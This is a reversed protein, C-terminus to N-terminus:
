YTFSPPIYNPPVYRYSPTGRYRISRRIWGLAKLCAAARNQHIQQQDKVDIGLEILMESATTSSLVLVKQAIQDQWPDVIRRAEQEVSAATTLAESDLWWIEDALFRDRAEAWLMDRVTALADLDIRGTAVSWFRRAGTEDRLYENHNVTGAFVNQRPQEIVRHGYAPRFRDATRSMFAKIKSVDGRGMADLEAIEFCWAGPLQMSADKTGLDSIEDTFWPHFMTKLASSKGRGQPGELILACDAKCGPQMVRAVASILWRGSIARVLPTDEVGLCKILWEDLRPRGDWRCREIYDVVPHFIADQAAAEVAQGATDKSVLIGNHQLWNAARLDDLDLWIRDEPASSWPPTGRIITQQRFADFKLVGHWEPAEKFATIANALLPKPVGKNTTILSFQWNSTQSHGNGKM